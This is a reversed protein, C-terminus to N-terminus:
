IVSLKTIAKKENYYIYTWNFKIFLYFEQELYIYFNHWQVDFLM